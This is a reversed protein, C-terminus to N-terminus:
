FAELFAPTVQYIDANLIDPNEKSFFGKNAANFVVEAL